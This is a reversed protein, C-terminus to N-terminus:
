RKSKMEKKGEPESQALFTPRGVNGEDQLVKTSAKGEALLM